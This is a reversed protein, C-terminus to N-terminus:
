PAVARDYVQVDDIMGSWFSGAKLNSSTGIWLGNSAGVLNPQTDEAVVIDDVYLSRQSGDWVFGIRHWNDDTIVTESYLPAGISRGASKTLETMLAGNIDAQLWNVGNDQSLIVQGPVAGKIWAFVSFRDEAPNLALPAGIRDDIGDFELAGNVQGGEPQWVAGGIVIADNEAASDYAFMGETEDLMWHALLRYDEFLHESLAILDQVDVIGDGAPSPVLDYRPEDTHWHDVMISMDQADVVGDENFDFEPASIFEWVTSLSPNYPYPASTGGIIYIRRGVTSTGMSTMRVPMDDKATWTDTAPEYRFLTSHPVGGPGAVGGFAYIKEDVVSNRSTRPAPMDAKTTWTDTAPDYEEVTSLASSAGTVGGSAYIKGNVFCTFLIGRATPMNAKKTWTDTTPEYAEVTSLHVGSRYGGIAYIKGDVVSTSLYGRSASMDGRKTWTDTAPDYEEVTAFTRGGELATDGGIAYIKGDVVSTALYARGTPMDTKQTWTDTVSDYEEVKKLGGTGGIAYIKGDVVSTSFNRRATPMDTKQTWTAAGASAFMVTAVLGALVFTVKLRKHNNNKKM